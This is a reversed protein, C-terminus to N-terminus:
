KKGWAKPGRKIGAEEEEALRAKVAPANPAVVAGSLGMGTAKNVDASAKKGIRLADALYKKAQKSAVQWIDGAAHGVAIAPKILIRKGAKGSSVERVTGSITDGVIGALGTVKGAAGKGLSSVARGTARSASTLAGKVAKGEKSLGGKASKDYDEFRKQPM